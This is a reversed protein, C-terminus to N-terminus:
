SVAQTSTSYRAGMESIAQTATSYRTGTESIAQTTTSYKKEKPLLMSSTSDMAPSLGGPSDPSEEGASDASGGDESPSKTCIYIHFYGGGADDPVEDDPARNGGDKEMHAVEIRWPKASDHALYPLRTSPAAHSVCFFRGGPRLLRYVESLMDRVRPFAHGGTVLTDLLAKDIIADYCEDPFETKCADMQLFQLESRGNHRRASRARTVAVVSTDIATVNIWGDAHLCAPVESTGFGIDLIEAGSSAPPLRQKLIGSLRDYGMYWDFPLDGVAAHRADWYTSSYRLDGYPPPDDPGLEYKVSPHPALVPPSGKGSKAGKGGGKTSSGKSWGGRAGPSTSRKDGPYGVLM